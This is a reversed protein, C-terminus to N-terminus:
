DKRPEPGRLPPPTGPARWLFVAGRGLSEEGAGALTRGDPAFAVASVKYPTSLAFLEQGTAVHWLRVVQDHGGSALTRGDPSFALTDVQARHGVLATPERGAATDWLKVAMDKGGSALLRGDASYALACVAATHGELKQRLRGSAVDWLEVTAGRNLALTAGDPAFALAVTDPHDDCLVRVERGSVTDWLQVRGADSATALLRGDPSFAVARVAIQFEEKTPIRWKLLADVRQWRIRDAANTFLTRRERGAALDWLCVVGASCGAAVTRGDPALALCHLSVAVPLPLAARQRGTAPDWLRVAETARDRVFTRYNTNKGPQPYFAKEPPSEHTGTLLTRGDPTFALSRVAALLQDPPAEVSDTALDWSRVRGHRQVSVLRRSDPCFGITGVENRGCELLSSQCRTAVNVLMIKFGNAVVVAVSRGDPAVALPVKTGTGLPGASSSGAPGAVDWFAVPTDRGATVLSGGDITFALSHVGAGATLRAREKGAALDWLVLATGAAAALTSGSPSFAVANLSGPLRVLPREQGDSSRRLWLSGDRGGLALLTGDPSFALCEVVATTAIRAEQRGTTADWLRVTWDEASTAATRGDRTLAVARVEAAHGTLRSREDWTAPDLIRVTGDRCAVAMTRGDAAFAALGFAELAPHLTDYDQQSDFDWLRVTGDASASALQRRDPAFAVGWVPAEHGKGVFHVTPGRCDWVHVMTGDGGSAAYRGDSSVAVARVAARPENVPFSVGGSGPAYRLVEGDSWGVVVERTYPVTTLCLIYSSFGRNGPGVLLTFQPTKGPVWSEAICNKAIETTVITEANGLFALAAIATARPHSALERSSAVDWLRAHCDRGGSALREGDPSFALCTAGGTHGVWERRETGDAPDWLRVTGDDGTTALSRGDPAFAVARVAGQHRRLVARQQLTAPDWLRVTGDAGASALTRGDPAYAVGFVDGEHGRLTHAESGHGLRDLYHWAFDRNDEDEPGPVHRGLQARMAPVAGNRWFFQHSLRVDAVYLHRRVERERERGASLAEKLRGEREQVTSLAEELRATHWAMGAVGGLLVLLSVAILAVAFPRRRAWRALHELVGTRRALIPENDIFRQLDDALAAADPYRRAPDKHLCKLCVTELDRSVLRNDPRPPEPERNRVQELTELVTEGRFPPRGALLAYLIAGLGYVDTVTTIAQRSGTAQEPAMYGPTGVIAGSQTLSSDGEVRRALGFDTVHPRGEADLLINSPKLDRHLVGRQHAHHVARAVAAVLRAAAKPDDRFRGLHEALSGGEVLKMSFYLQGTQEGVEHVPVIHPHDLLAVMAAENRFRQVEDASAWEGARVMKLAVLRNLGRQRARYVVGMGGRAIEGLLEYDGFAGPSTGPSPSAGESVTAAPDETAPREGARAIERLPAGLREVEEQDAFFGALETAFEPYRALWEGPDPRRGEERERLYAFVIEGFREERESL